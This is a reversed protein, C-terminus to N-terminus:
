IVGRRLLAWGTWLVLILYYSTWGKTIPFYRTFFSFKGFLKKGIGTWATINAGIADVLLLYFIIAELSM